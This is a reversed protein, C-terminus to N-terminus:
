QGMPSAMVGKYPGPAVTILISMKPDTGFSSIDAAEGTSSFASVALAILGCEATFGPLSGAFAATGIGTSAVIPGDAITDGGFMENGDYPPLDNDSEVVDLLMDSMQDTGLSKAYISDSAESPLLPEGGASGTQARSIHYEQVLGIKSAPATAGLLCFTPQVETGDDDWVYNSLNWEDPPIADGAMTPILLTSSGDHLEVKFDAWKGDINGLGAGHYHRGHDGSGGDPPSQVSKQQARWLSYGKKWANHVMWSDGATGATVIVSAVAATPAFVFRVDQVYYQMGQRYLRRNIASLDKALDIDYTGDAAVDYQITRIAPQMKAM